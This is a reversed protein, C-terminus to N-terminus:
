WPEGRQPRLPGRPVFIGVGGGGRVISTHPSVVRHRVDSDTWTTIATPPFDQLFKGLPRGDPATDVMQESVNRRGVGM